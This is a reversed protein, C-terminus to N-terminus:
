RNKFCNSCDSCMYRSDAYDILVVRNDVKGFNQIKNDLPLHKFQEEMQQKDYEGSSLPEAREMILFLGFPSTFIVKALKNKEFGSKYWFKEDINALIGRLFMKYRHGKYKHHIRPFKIAYKGILIVFRTTGRKIKM